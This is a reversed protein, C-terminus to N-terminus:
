RRKVLIPLAAAMAGFGIALNWYGWSSVPYLGTSLYFVVLWAIGAMTLAVGLASIGAADAVKRGNDNM